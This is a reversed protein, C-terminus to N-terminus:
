ARTDKALQLFAVVPMTLIIFLVVTVLYFSPTWMFEAMPPSFPRLPIHDAELAAGMALYIWKTVMLDSVREAIPNGAITSLVGSFLVQPIVVIPILSNARDANRAVASIILGMGAGAVSGLVLGAYLLPLAQHGAGLWLLAGLLALSQVGALVTLVALKSALYARLRLNAHRERAYIAAEKVIERAANSTGFWVAVLALLFLVRRAEANNGDAGVTLIGRSFLIALMMAVVIPQAMLLLLYPGDHWVTEAYRWSLIWFQRLASAPRPMAAPREADPPVDAVPGPQTRRQTASAHPETLQHYLDAWDSAGCQALVEGPPGDYVLHGGKALILLRDCHQAVVLVAHTVMVITREEQRSQEAFEAILRAELDLDLGATPEDLFLLRPRALIEAAISVRKREGGSVDRVRIARQDAIGLEALVADVRARALEERTGAPLRLCASYYLAREVTLEAPVIDDQPVYGIVSGYRRRYVPAPVGDYLVTEERVPLLGSIAKLLTTKGAGSPGIVAVFAGHPIALSLEHLLIRGDPATISLDSCQIRM